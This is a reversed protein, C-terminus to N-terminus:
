LKDFLPSLESELMMWRKAAENLHRVALDYDIEELDLGQVENIWIQVFRDEDKEFQKINIGYKVELRALSSMKSSYIERLVDYEM